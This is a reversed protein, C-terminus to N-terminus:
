NVFLYGYFNYAAHLLAVLWFAIKTKKHVNLFYWNMIIGGVLAMLAYLPHYLHFISFLISPLLILLPKNHISIKKLLFNPLLNFILTELIPAIVIVIIFKEIESFESLGSNNSSYHFYRSNLYNFFYGNLIAVSLCTIFLLINKVRASM